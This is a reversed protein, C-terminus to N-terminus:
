IRLPVHWRLRTGGGESAIASAGGGRRRAREELNRLGSRPAGPDIGTGNDIVEVVIAGRAAHALRGGAHTPILVQGDRVGFRVPQVVPLAGSTFVLRGFDPTALLRWCDDATSTM